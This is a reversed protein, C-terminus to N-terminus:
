KGAPASPFRTSRSPPVPPPPSASKTSHSTPASPQPPSPRSLPFGGQHLSVRGTRCHYRFTVKTAGTLLPHTPVIPERNKVDLAWGAPGGFPDGFFVQEWGVHFLSIGSWGDTHFSGSTPKGTEVTVLLVERDTDPPPLDQVISYNDGEIRDNSFTPNGYKIQWAQRNFVDIPVPQFRGLSRPFLGQQLPM